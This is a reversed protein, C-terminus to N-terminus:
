HTGITYQLCQSNLNEAVPPPGQRRAWWNQFRQSTVHTLNNLKRRRGGDAAAEGDVNGWSRGWSTSDRGDDSTSLLGASWGKRETRMDSLQRITHHIHTHLSTLSNTPAHSLSLSLSRHQLHIAFPTMYTCTIYSCTHKSSDLTHAHKHALTTHAHTHSVHKILEHQTHM